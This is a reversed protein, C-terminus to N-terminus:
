IFKMRYFIKEFSVQRIIILFKSQTENLENKDLNKPDARERNIRAQMLSEYGTLAVEFNQLNSPSGSYVLRDENHLYGLALLMEVVEPQIFM